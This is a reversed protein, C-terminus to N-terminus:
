EDRWGHMGAAPEVERKVRMDGNWGCVLKEGSSGGEDEKEEEWGGDRERCIEEATM